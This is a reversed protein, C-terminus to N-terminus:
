KLEPRGAATWATYWYSGTDEAARGLRQALLAGAQREFAEYYFSDYGAQGRRSLAELYLLNDLWVYSERVVDFAFRAPDDLYRAADCDLKLRREMAEPLRESFRAWLGHQGTKQGDANDSLALPNHLDAVLAALADSESLIRAKDGARFAEVLRAYSEQALWPLRGVDAAQEGFRTKFATESTPLEPFPFALLRDIEFRREPPDAPIVAELALSPMEYRHDKYFSKIQKPLTEIAKTTVLQHAAPGWALAPAAVAALAAAALGLAGRRTDGM